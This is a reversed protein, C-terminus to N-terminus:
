RLLPIGGKTGGHNCNQNPTMGTICNNFGANSGAKCNGGQGSPSSGNTCNGSGKVLEGLPLVIPAEYVPKNDQNETSLSETLRELIKSTLQLTKVDLQLATIGNKTGTIKLDMDGNYDEIGMIDSLISFMDVSEIKKLILKYDKEVADLEDAYSDRLAMVKQNM